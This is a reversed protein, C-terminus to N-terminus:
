RASYATGGIRGCARLVEALGALVAAQVFWASAPRLLKFLSTEGNWGDLADRLALLCALVFCVPLGNLVYVLFRTM